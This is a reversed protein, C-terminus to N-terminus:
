RQACGLLDVHDAGAHRAVNSLAEALVAGLHPAVERDVRSNVPGVFRVSPRFKLTRSAREALDLLYQEFSLGEQQANRALEEYSARFAPLHLEKLYSALLEKEDKNKAM